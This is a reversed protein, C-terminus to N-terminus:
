LQSLASNQIEVCAEIVIATETAIHQYGIACCQSGIGDYRVTTQHLAHWPMHDFFPQGVLIAALDHTQYRPLPNGISRCLLLLADAGLFPKLLNLQKKSRM